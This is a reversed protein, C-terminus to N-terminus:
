DTTRAHEVFVHMKRRYFITRIWLRHERPTISKANSLKDLKHVLAMAFSEQTIILQDCANSGLYDFLEVAIIKKISWPKEEGCDALLRRIEDLATRMNTTM